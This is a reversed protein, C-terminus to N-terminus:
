IKNEKFSDDETYNLVITTFYSTFGKLMNVIFITIFDFVLNM